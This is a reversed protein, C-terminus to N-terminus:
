DRQFILAISKLHRWVQNKHWRQFVIFFQEYCAAESPIKEIAKHDAYQGKQITVTRKGDAGPRRAHLPRPLRRDDPRLFVEEAGFVAAPSAFPHYRLRM